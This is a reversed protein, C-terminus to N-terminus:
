RIEPCPVIEINPNHMNILQRLALSRAKILKMYVDINGTFCTEPPYCYVIFKIKLHTKTKLLIVFEVLRVWEIQATFYVTLLNVLNRIHEINQLMLTM